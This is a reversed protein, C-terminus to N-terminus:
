KIFIHSFEYTFSPPSDRSFLFHNYYKLMRKGKFVKKKKLPIPVFAGGVTSLDINEHLMSAHIQSNTEFYKYSNRRDSYYFGYESRNIM